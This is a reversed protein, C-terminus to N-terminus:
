SIPSNNKGLGDLSPLPINEFRAMVAAALCNGLLNVSTRVMDMIQDVGLILAIGELPLGFTVLTGSLVVLSARPVGAVGKSTFMLIALLTLQQNLSLEIGAAQAVFVPALALWVTAGNLNFSYGMPLVFSAIRNPVGFQEISKLALPYASESSSTAFGLLLVNKVQRIFALVPIRYFLCVPYLVCLMFAFLALFLTGMLKLLPFVVQWGNESVTSAMAACVGLPALLMIYNTFNFMVESLSKCISVIPSGKEGIALAALGFITSYIVVQLVDGRVIAEAFNSPLLHEIFGAFSIPATAVQKLNDSITGGIHLGVGPKFVNAAVMGFILALATIVTFYIFLHMGMKGFRRVNGTGAIGTVITSFVLPAIISKVGNLFLGRFPKILSVLEPMWIGIFLRVCPRFIAM